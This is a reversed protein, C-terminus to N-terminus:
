QHRVFGWTRATMGAARVDSSSFEGVARLVKRGIQSSTLLRDLSRLMSPVVRLARARGLTTVIVCPSLPAFCKEDPVGDTHPLIASTQCGLDVVMERERLSPRVVLVVKSGVTIRVM